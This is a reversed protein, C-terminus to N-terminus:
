EAFQEGYETPTLIRARIAGSVGDLEIVARRTDREDVSVLEIVASDSAGDPYFTLASLGEPEEGGAPSDTSRTLYASPGALECREVRVLGNPVERLWGSGAHRVFQGPESLPEPEWLIEARLGEDEFAIRLRRGRTCADARAMRLVTEFAAAGQDLQRGRQLGWLSLASTGILVALLALTLMMELLTFAACRQGVPARGACAVARLPPLDGAPNKRGVAFTM